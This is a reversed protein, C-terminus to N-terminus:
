DKGRHSRVQFEVEVLAATQRAGTLSVTLGLIPAVVDKM